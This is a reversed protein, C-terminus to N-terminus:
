FEDIFEELKYSVQWYRHCVDCNYMNCSEKFLVLNFEESKCSPCSRNREAEVLRQIISERNM